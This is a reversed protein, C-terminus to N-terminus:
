EEWFKRKREHMDQVIVLDGRRFAGERNCLSEPIVWLVSGGHGIVANAIGGMLGNSGGGYVLRIHNEALIKVFSRAAIMFAPHDGPGSGCYVCISRIKELVRKRRTTAGVNSAPQPDASM